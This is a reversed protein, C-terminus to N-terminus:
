TLKLYQISDRLFSTEMRTHVKQGAQRIAGRQVIRQLQFGLAATAIPVAQSQRGDVVVIKGTEILALAM